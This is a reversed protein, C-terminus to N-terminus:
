YPCNLCVGNLSYVYVKPNSKRSLGYLVDGAVSFAYLSKPLEYHILPNGDWDYVLLHPCNFTDEGSEKLNKGSYLLYIFREDADMGLFGQIDDRYFAVAPGTEATQFKPFSYHYSRKLARNGDPLIDYFDILGFCGAVLTEENGVMLTGTFLAGKQLNDLREVDENSPYGADVVVKGSRKDLSYIRGEKFLGIGYIYNETELFRIAHDGEEIPLDYDLTHGAATDNRLEELNVGYIKGQHFDAFRFSAPSVTKVISYHSMEGPGQGIVSRTTVRGSRLDMYQMERNGTMSCFVLFSDKYQIYHPNLIGLAELDISDTVELEATRAFDLFPSSQKQNGCASFLLTISM